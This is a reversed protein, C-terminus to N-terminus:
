RRLRMRRLLRRLPPGAWISVFGSWLAVLTWLTAVIGLATLVFASLSRTLVALVMLSLMWVLDGLAATAGASILARPGANFLSMMALDAILPLAIVAIAAFLLKEWLLVTRVYPRTLWFPTFGVLPEEHVLQAVILATLLAEVIEMTDWLQQLFLGTAPSAGAAAAGNAALVVSAALLALWLALLWRLRRLDKRMIHMTQSM